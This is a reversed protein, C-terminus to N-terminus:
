SAPPAAPPVAAAPAAPAAATQPAAGRRSRRQPTPEYGTYGTIREGVEALEALERTRVVRERGNGDKTTAVKTQYATDRPLQERAADIHGAIEDHVAQAQEVNGARDANDAEVFLGRVYNVPNM